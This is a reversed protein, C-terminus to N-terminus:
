QQQVHVEINVTTGQANSQIEMKGKLYNVRNEISALGMSENKPQNIDFGKGNDEVTIHLINEEQICQVLVKEAEAYKVANAVLEQVIRYITLQHEQKIKSNIKYAQFVVNTKNNGISECLDKLAPELGFRLLTEPMLNRAIRRLENVSYDLQNIVKYLEMDRPKQNTNEAIHSLGIKVGALMGGLGDHLDQALRKREAEQGQLMANYIQLEQQQEMEKIKQQNSQQQLKTTRQKNKYIIFLLISLLLLILVSSLLLYNVFRGHELDAQQQKSKNELALIQKEKKESQYKAELAAIDTKTKASFLSDSLISYQMLWKYAAPTNGLAADTEALEFLIQKTNNSLPMQKNMNYVQLLVPMANEFKKQEKYVKYKEYLISQVDYKSNIKEALLLGKNLETIATDFSRIGRYYMGSVSYYTTLYVPLSNTHLIKFASDLCPKAKQFQYNETFAKAIMTYCDALAANNNAVKTLLHLAKNYYKLANEYDTNNMFVAGLDMYNMGMRLSDGALTAFPIAKNLLIDVYEKENNKRQELAGYNHWLRARYQYALPSTNHNLLKEALMYEQQSKNFDYDFLIGAKNFHAIATYFSNGNSFQLSKKIYEFAKATDEDSWYDALQLYLNAKATDTTANNLLTQLSDPLSRNDAM